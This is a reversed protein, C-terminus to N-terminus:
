PPPLRCCDLVRGTPSSRLHLRGATRCPSRSSCYPCTPRRLSGEPTPQFQARCSHVTIVAGSVTQRCIVGNPPTFGESPVRSKAWQHLLELKQEVGEHGALEVM